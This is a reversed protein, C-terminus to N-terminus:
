RANANKFPNEAFAVYAFTQGSPFNFAGSSQACKFGNSLINVAGETSEAGSTNPYLGSTSSNYPSIATDIVYWNTSSSTRKFMIWRPRFGTYIFPGDASANAVYSGFASYGPIAAWCYAVYNNASANVNLYGVTGSIFSFTTSTLTGIGGNSTDSSVTYAADTSQLALNQTSGLSVHRVAWSHGANTRNKVIVMSPTVGLGHGVTAASGSGTYTVVSFGATTNVSVTSTISGSTNSSTSGQGAQWQWGVFTDGNANLINTSATSGVSWGNSNYSTLNQFNPTAGEASTADSYLAKTTGTGRVSDYLVHSYATNRAKTWVLDPKFGAANTITQTSGNGTYLTADMVKNGQLVASDPLNYTNLRLYGSPPTYAFPRQGFNVAYASSNQFGFAPYFTGSIGTFATGQSSNNKYFILTGADADFAVGIVDGNTWNAGYATNTGANWKYATTGTGYGYSNTTLGATKAALTADTIGIINSTAVGGATQTMEWYWKGSSIAISGTVGINTGAASAALNGNTVTISTDKNSPNLVCYNAVTASTNTPVDTMADYTAGATVSINTTNWYNGNGSFDKGLGANSGSTTAIDSFKLYFGNTGYTGTYAKPVWSGTTTSTEGFSSPTLQQGDILNFEAMYGDFYTADDSATGIYVAQSQKTFAILTNQPITGNTTFATVQTGNVYLKVRDGATAQTTDYALVLHYWASPDRFVQTTVRPTVSYMSVQITNDSRFYFGSYNDNGVGAGSQMIYYSGTLIGRKVWCSLTLKKGDTPASGPTRSLYASASNRFRLSNNIDYGGATSIANSNNLIAM